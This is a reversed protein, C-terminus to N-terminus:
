VSKYRQIDAWRAQHSSLLKGELKRSSITLCESGLVSEREWFGLLSRSEWCAAGLLIGKSEPRQGPSQELALIQLASTETGKRLLRHDNAYKVTTHATCYVSDRGLPFM